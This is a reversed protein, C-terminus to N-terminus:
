PIETQLAQIKKNLSADTKKVIKLLCSQFLVVFNESLQIKITYLYLESAPFYTKNFIDLGWNTTSSDVDIIFICFLFLSYVMSM